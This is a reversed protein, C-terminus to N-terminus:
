GYVVLVSALTSLLVLWLNGVHMSGGNTVNGNCILRESIGHGVLKEVQKCDFTPDTSNVELYKVSRDKSIGNSNM